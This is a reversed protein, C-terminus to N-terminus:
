RKPAVRYARPKRTITINDFRSENLNIGFEEAMEPGALIVRRFSMSRTWQGLAMPCWGRRQLEPRSFRTRAIRVPMQLSCSGQGHPSQQLAVVDFEAFVLRTNPEARKGNGTSSHPM